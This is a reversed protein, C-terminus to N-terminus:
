IFQYQRDIFHENLKSRAKHIQSGRMFSINIVYQRAVGIMGIVTSDFSFPDLIFLYLRWTCPQCQKPTSFELAFLEISALPVAGPLQGIFKFIEAGDTM